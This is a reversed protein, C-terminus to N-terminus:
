KEKEYANIITLEFEDVGSLRTRFLEFADKSGLVGPRLYLLGYQSGVIICGETDKQLNGWHFVIETRDPVNTVWFTEGFKPSIIRKCVYVGTPICSIDEKNDLWPNELTVCVPIGDFVFAGFTGHKGGAVRILEAKM